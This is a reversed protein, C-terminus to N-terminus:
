ENLSICNGIPTIIPDIEVTKRDKIDLFGVLLFMMFAIRSVNKILRIRVVNKTKRDSKKTFM